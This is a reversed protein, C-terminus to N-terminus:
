EIVKFLRKPTSSSCKRPDEEPLHFSLAVNGANAEEADGFLHNDLSMLEPSDGPLEHKHHDPAEQSFHGVLKIVRNHWTWQPNSPHPCTLSKLYDITEKEWFITLHDHHLMWTHTHKTDACIRNGQQTIHNIMQKIGHCKSKFSPAETICQEWEAGHRAKSPEETGRCQAWGQRDVGKWDGHKANIEGHLRNAQVCSILKRGSYDFTEMMQPVCKGNVMPCCVGHAGRPEQDHKPQVRHRCVPPKGGARVSKLQFTHEDVATRWQINANSGKYGAGAIACENHSQDVQLVGDIWLPIVGDEMCTALTMSEEDIAKGCHFQEKMQRCFLLGAKAWPGNTDESGTKRRLIACQQVDTCERLTSVLTNRTM